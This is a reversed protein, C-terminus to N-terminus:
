RTVLGMRRLEAAIEPPIEGIRYVGGEEPFLERIAIIKEQEAMGDRLPLLMGPRKAAFLISEVVARHADAEAIRVTHRSGGLSAVVVEDANFWIQATGLGGRLYLVKIDEMGKGAIITIDADPAFAPHPTGRLKMYSLSASDRMCIGPRDAQEWARWDPRRLPEWEAAAIGPFTRDFLGLLHCAHELFYGKEFAPSPWFPVKELSVFAIEEIPGVAALVEAGHIDFWAPAAKFRYHDVYFARVDLAPHADLLATWRASESELYVPKELFLEPCPIGRSSYAEAISRLNDYHAGPPSLVLVKEVAALDLGPDDWWRDVEVCGERGKDICAIRLDISPAADAALAELNPIYRERAVAGHGFVLINPPQQM